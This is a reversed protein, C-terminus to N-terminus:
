HCDVDGDDGFEDVLAEHADPRGTVRWTLFVEEGSRVRKRVGIRLNHESFKSELGAVTEADAPCIVEYTRTERVNDIWRELIPFLWLVIFVALAAAISIAYQGGGIGMGLAATIWITSATTLGLIRGPTRLIAGAGLFGIGTVINAAIRTADVGRGLNISYMTFLASGVTILIITRFGAAKDRYEREAGIFGGVAIALLLKILDEPLLYMFTVSRGRELAAM